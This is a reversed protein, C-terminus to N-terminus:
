KSLPVKYKELIKRFNKHKRVNKLDPDKLLLDNDNLGLALARDLSALSRDPKNQLSYLAAFNYHVTPNNPNISSAKNLDDMAKDFKKQQIFVAARNSYSAEFDPYKEIALTFERIAEDLAQNKALDIGKMNLMVEPRVAETSPTTAATPAPQPQEKKKCGESLAVTCILGALILMVATDRFLRM